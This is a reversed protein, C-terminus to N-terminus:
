WLIFLFDRAKTPIRSRGTVSIITWSGSLFPVHKWIVSLPHTYFYLVQFTINKANVYYIFACFLCTNYGHTLFRQLRTIVRAEYKVHELNLDRSLCRTDQSLNEEFGGSLNLFIIKLKLVHGRGEV